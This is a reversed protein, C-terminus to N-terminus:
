QTGQKAPPKSLQKQLDKSTKQSELLTKQLQLDILQKMLEKKEADLPAVFAPYIETDMEKQKDQIQKVKEAIKQALEAMKAKYARDEPSEEEGKAAPANPNRPVSPPPSSEGYPVQPSPNPRNPIPPETGQDPLATYSALLPFSMWFSLISAVIALSRRGRHTKKHRQCGNQNKNGKAM